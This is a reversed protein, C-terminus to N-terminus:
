SARAGIHLIPRFFLFTALRAPDIRGNRCTWTDEPVHIRGIRRPPEPRCSVDRLTTESTFIWEFGAEQAEAVLAESWAGHPFSMSLIAQGLRDLLRRSAQLEVGPDIALTLPSHTHGHGGVALAVGQLSRLEAMSVMQRRKVRPTADLAHQEIWTEREHAPMVALRATLTHLMQEPAVNGVHLAGCLRAATGPECLAAVLADQWWRDCELEVVESPVFLVAPLKRRQLEPAAYLLTDRWGDDFTILIPTGPLATRGQGFSQLQELSVVNYHRQVFDLTRQFGELTFTFERQALEFDPDNAPLVRHFMLVTLAHRNRWRHWYSFAGSRYLATRLTDKVLKGVTM